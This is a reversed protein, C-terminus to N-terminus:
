GGYHKGQVVSVVLQGPVEASAVGWLRRLFINV